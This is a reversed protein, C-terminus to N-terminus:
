KSTLLCMREKLISLSGVSCQSKNSIKISQELNSLFVTSDHSFNVPKVLGDFFKFIKRFFLALTNSFNSFLVLELNMLDILCDFFHM